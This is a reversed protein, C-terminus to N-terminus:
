GDKINGIEGWGVLLLLVQVMWEMFMQQVWRYVFTPNLFKSESM